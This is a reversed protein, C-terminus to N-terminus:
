YKDYFTICLISVLLFVYLFYNEVQNTLHKLLNKINAYIKSIQDFPGM